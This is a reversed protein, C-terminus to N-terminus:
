TVLIQFYLGAILLCSLIHSCLAFLFSVILPVRAKENGVLYYRYSQYAFLLSFFQFEAYSRAERSWVIEFPSVALIISSLLGLGVNSARKGLFYLLFVSAAGFLVSPLRAAFENNGFIGISVALGYSSIFSTPYIRNSPLLPYGHKLVGEASLAFVAEDSWFSSLGLNRARMGLAVAVVAFVSIAELITMRTRKFMRFAQRNHFAPFDTTSAVTRGSM